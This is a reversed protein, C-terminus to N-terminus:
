FHRRHYTSQIKGKSNQYKVTINVLGSSGPVAVAKAEMKKDGCSEKKNSFIVKIDELREKKVGSIVLKPTQQKPEYDLLCDGAKFFVFKNDVDYGVNPLNLFFIWVYCNQWVAFGVAQRNFLLDTFSSWVGKVVHVSHLKERFVRGQNPEPIDEPNVM